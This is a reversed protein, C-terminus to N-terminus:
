VFAINLAGASSICSTGWFTMAATATLVLYIGGITQFLIGDKILIALRYKLLTATKDITVSFMVHVWDM